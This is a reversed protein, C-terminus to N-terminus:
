KSSEILERASRRTTETVSQGGLLRAIEEVTEEQTLRDVSTFTSSENSEKHIRYNAGGCAAIQPLHTICIVQHHEAIQKLKRGVISATIGSIGTDIEDFILTPIQEYTGTINRVALMIRSIEGGSAIRALPRLPEGRNTSIMIAATDAGEPGIAPAPSVDIRLVADQFNLDHLENEIAASLEEASKERLRTLESAADKLIRLREALATELESKRQGYIEMGSLADELKQRYEIVDQIDPGYKKKLNDIQDLRQIAQDLEAPTFTVNERFDSLSRAVDQINYYADDLERSAEALDPAYSRIGELAQQVQGLASLINHDGSDLLSCATGIGGFIKESNSLMRIREELEGDEGPQPDTRRIESLEFEFYDKKRRNEKEEAKLQELETRKSRYQEYAERFRDRAPGIKEQHYRDVLHIHQDQDLLMQNDYQGHIDAIRHALASLEGLTVLRGNLRCLNKGNQSIERSIVFAQGDLEAALQILAKKQGHRVLSSDARAGLALSVAEIVISKGSGTEGTIINLGDEFDIETNEIIAFNHILLHQLM